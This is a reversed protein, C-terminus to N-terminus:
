EKVDLIVQLAAIEVFAKIQYTMWWYKIDLTYNMTMNVAEIDIHIHVGTEKATFLFVGTRHVKSLGVLTGNSIKAEGRFMLTFNFTQNPLPLPDLGQSLMIWALLREFVPGKGTRTTSGAIDASSECM